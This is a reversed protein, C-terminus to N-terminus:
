GHTYMQEGDQFGRGGGDGDWGEPDDWHVLGSCGTELMLGPSTIWKVYSLICTEIGNEWMMGDEGEGM